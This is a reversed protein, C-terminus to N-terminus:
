LDRLAELTGGHVALTADLAAGFAPRVRARAVYQRVAEDLVHALPRDHAEAFERLGRLAEASMKSSFKVVARRIDRCTM